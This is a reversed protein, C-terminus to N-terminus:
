VVLLTLARINLCLAIVNVPYFFACISLNISIVCAAEVFFCISVELTIFETLIYILVDAIGDGDDAAVVVADYQCERFEPPYESPPIDIDTFHCTSSVPSSSQSTTPASLTTNSSLAQPCAPLDSNRRYVLTQGARSLSTQQVASVQSPLVSMDSAADTTCAPLTISSTISDDAGADSLSTVSHCTMLSEDHAQQQQQQQQMETSVAVSDFESALQQDSHESAASHLGQTHLLDSCEMTSYFDSWFVDIVNGSLDRVCTEIACLLLM